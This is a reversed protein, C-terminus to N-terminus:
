SHQVLETFKEVFQLGFLTDGDECDCWKLVPTDKYLTEAQLM